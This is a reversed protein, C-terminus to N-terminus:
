MSSSSKCKINIYGVFKILSIFLGAMSRSSQKKDAFFTLLMILLDCVLWVLLVVAAACILRAPTLMGTGGMLGGFAKQLSATISQKTAGDFFPIWGPNVLLLVVVALVIMKVVNKGKM